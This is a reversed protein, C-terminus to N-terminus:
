KGENIDGPLKLIKHIIQLGQKDIEIVENDGILDKYQNILQISKKKNINKYKGIPYLCNSKIRRYFSNEDFNQNIIPGIVYSNNIRAIM